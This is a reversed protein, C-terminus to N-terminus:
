GDAIGVVPPVVWIAGIWGDGLTPPENTPPEVDQAGSGSLPGIPTESDVPDPIKSVPPMTLCPILMDVGAVEGILKIPLISLQPILGAVDTAWIVIFIGEAFPACSLSSSLFSGSPM